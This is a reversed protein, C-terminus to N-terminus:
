NCQQTKTWSFGSVMYEYINNHTRAHTIYHQQTQSDTTRKEITIQVIVILQLM